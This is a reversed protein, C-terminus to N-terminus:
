GRGVITYALSSGYMVDVTAVVRVDFAPSHFDGYAPGANTNRYGAAVLQATAKALDGPLDASLVWVAWINGPHSVHLIPGALLPVKDRPFGPPLPVTAPTASASPDAAASANPDVATAGSCGFLTLITGCSAVALFVARLVTM